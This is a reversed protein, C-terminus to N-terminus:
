GEFIRKKKPKMIKDVTNKLRKELFSCAGARAGKDSTM